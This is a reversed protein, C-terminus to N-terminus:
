DLIKRMCVMDCGWAKGTPDNDFWADKKKAYVVYGRRQYWDQNTIKPVPRGMAIRRPSNIAVMENDITGLTIAKASFDDRALRECVDMAAGGLGVSQLPKSIYFSMLSYVGNAPNTELEADSTVGDFSIHGIPRFSSLASIPTHPQSFVNKCTDKLPESQEPFAEIHMRLRRDTDPHSPRLVIWHMGIHGQRQELRWEDVKEVKWGCDVRQQKLRQVHDESDPDWPILYIPGKNVKGDM